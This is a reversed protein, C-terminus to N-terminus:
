RSAFAARVLDNRDNCLPVLNPLIYEPFINADSLPVNTVAKVCETICNFAAIRVSAFRDTLLTIQLLYKKSGIQQLFCGFFTGTLFSIQLIPSM